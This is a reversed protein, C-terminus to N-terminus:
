LAECNDRLAGRGESCVVNEVFRVHQAEKVTPGGRKGLHGAGQVSRSMTGCGVCYGM